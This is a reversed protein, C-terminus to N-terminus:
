CRKLVRNLNRLLCSVQVDMFILDYNAGKQMSEMVYRHAVEGDEAIQVDTIKEMKLLRTVVLQNTSNDEAVLVKLSRVETGAVPPSPHLDMLADTNVASNNKNPSKTTGRESNTYPKGGEHMRSSTSLSRTSRTDMNNGMESMRGEPISLEGSISNRPSNQMVSGTGASSATSDARSGIQKLPIRLTFTSGQGEESKLQMSGGMLKALQACISLGLGTGQFKKSLAMDGQFFPEFVKEQMHTPMGPGTDSVEWEFWMDRAGLPPSINRDKTPTHRDLANIELATGIKNGSQHGLPQHASSSRESM